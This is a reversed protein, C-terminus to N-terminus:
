VPGPPGADPVAARRATGPPLGVVRLRGMGGDREFALSTWGAAEAACRNAVLRALIAAHLAAGDGHKDRGRAVEDFQAYLAGLGFREYNPM